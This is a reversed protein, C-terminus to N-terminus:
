GRTDPLQVLNLMLFVSALLYNLMENTVRETSILKTKKRSFM